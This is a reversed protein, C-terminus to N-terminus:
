PLGDTASERVNLRAFVTTKLTMRKKSALDERALDEKKDKSM